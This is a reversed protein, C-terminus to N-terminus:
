SGAAVGAGAGEVSDEAGASGTDSPSSPLERGARTCRMRKWRGVRRSGAAGDFGPATAPTPPVWAWNWGAGAAAAGAKSSTPLASPPPSPLALGRSRRARGASAFAVFFPGGIM